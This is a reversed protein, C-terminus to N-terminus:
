DYAGLTLEKFSFQALVANPQWYYFLIPEKRSVAEAILTDLEFRNAPEVVDFLTDLGLSKLLNRNIVACGWDIPCSIFRGKPRGNAFVAANAALSAAGTIEPHAAAVYDPVFWGEF